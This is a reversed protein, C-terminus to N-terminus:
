VTSKALSAEGVGRNEETGSGSAETGETGVPDRNEGSGQGFPSPTAPMFCAVIDAFHPALDTRGTLFDAMSRAVPWPWGRGVLYAAVRDRSRGRFMKM